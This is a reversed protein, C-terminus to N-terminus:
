HASDAVVELKFCRGVANGHQREPKCDLAVILNLALVSLGVEEVDNCPAVVCFEDASVEVLASHNQNVALQLCPLVGVFVVNLAVYNLNDNVM